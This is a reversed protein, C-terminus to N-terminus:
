FVRREKFHGTVLYVLYGATFLIILTAWFGFSVMGESDYGFACVLMGLCWLVALVGSMFREM